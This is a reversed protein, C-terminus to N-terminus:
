TPWGRRWCLWYVGELCLSRPSQDATSTTGSCDEGSCTPQDTRSSVNFATFSKSGNTQARQPLVATMSFPHQLWSNVAMALLCGEDNM